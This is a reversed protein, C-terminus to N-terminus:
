HITKEEIMASRRHSPLVTQSKQGITFKHHFFHLLTGSYLRLISVWRLKSVRKWGKLFTYILMHDWSNWSKGWKKIRSEWRYKQTLKLYKITKKREGPINMRSKRKRPIHTVTIQNQWSQVLLPYSPFDLFEQTVISGLSNPEWNSRPNMLNLQTLLNKFKKLYLKHCMIRWNIAVKPSHCLGM